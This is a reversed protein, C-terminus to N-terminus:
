RARAADREAAIAALQAAVQILKIEAESPERPARSFAALVGLPEGDRTIIPASWCARLGHASTLERQGRWSEDGAVDAVITLDRRRIADGLPGALLEARHAEVAPLSTASRRAGPREEDLLLISVSVGTSQSEVLHVLEELVSEAPAGAVIMELIGAQGERLADALRRRTVDRSLGIVGVIEGRENRLPAKTTAIWLKGGDAALVYEVSDIMPRGTEIVEREDALYKQATEWPCLELDSKGILDQPSSRGLRLATARNAVIFRSELDKVWLNDPATDILSQLSIREEILLRREQLDTADEHISIWGGDAMPRYRVRITRGDELRVSWDREERKSDISDVYSLYDDVAMPCAGVAARRETIERLTTGPPLQDSTLGYIEAYRRNAVILRRERDFFGVGQSIADFATQYRRAQAELEDIRAQLAEANQAEQNM